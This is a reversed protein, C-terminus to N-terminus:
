PQSVSQDPEPRRAERHARVAMEAGNTRRRQKARKDIAYQEGLEGRAMREVEIAPIFVRHGLKVARIHGAAIQRRLFDKSTGFQACVEPISFAARPTVPIPPKRTAM